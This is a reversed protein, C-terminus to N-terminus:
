VAVCWAGDRVEFPLPVARATSGAIAFYVSGKGPGDVSLKDIIMESGRGSATEYLTGASTRRCTLETAAAEDSRNVADVYRQAIARLDEESGSSSGAAPGAEQSGSTGADRTLFYVVLGAGGIALVMAVGIAVLAVILGTRRRPPPPGPQPPYHPQQPPYPGPHGPQQPRYTM